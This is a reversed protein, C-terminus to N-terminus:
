KSRGTVVFRSTRVCRPNKLLSNCLKRHMRDSNIRTLHLFVGMKYSDMSTMPKLRDQTCDFKWRHTKAIKVRYFLRANMQSVVHIKIIWKGVDVIGSHRWRCFGTFWVSVTARHSSVGMVDRRKLSIAFCDSYFYTPKHKHQNKSYWLDYETHQSLNIPKITEGFIAGTFQRFTSIDFQLRYLHRTHTYITVPWAWQAQLILAVDVTCSGSKRTLRPCALLRVIM